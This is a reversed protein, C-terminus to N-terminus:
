RILMIYGKKSQIIGNLMEAEVIYSYNDMNQLKGNFYGNWGKNLDDSFFMEEGWRNFIRFQILDKIGYGRVFVINNEDDSQPTFAMPVDITYIEEVNINIIYENHSCKLSDEVVLLYTTTELPSLVPDPCDNCSINYNPTWSYILNNQDSIVNLQLYEGVIINFDESEFIVEPIQQVKINVSDISSCNRSNKVTAKYTINREPKISPNYSNIDSIYEDPSWECIIGGHAFLNIEDGFCIVTDNSVFLSPIAYIEVTKDITDRCGESSEVILSITVNKDFSSNNQIDINEQIEGNGYEINDTFWWRNEDNVSHSTLHGMLPSCVAETIIDGNNNYISFDAKADHVFINKVPLSIKCTDQFVLLSVQYYGTYPVSDYTHTFYGDFYENGDGMVWEMYDVNRVNIAEVLIADGVCISTDSVSIQAHPADIDINRSVSVECENSTTIILIIEHSGSGSLSLRPEHEVSAGGEYEWRYSFDANEPEVIVDSSLKVEIPYCTFYYGLDSIININEIAHVSITDKKEIICGNNNVTLSIGYIHGEDYIHTIENGGTIINGDGFDWTYTYDPDTEEATFVIISDVCSKYTSVTFEPNATSLNIIDRFVVPRSQCGRETTLTLTVSYSGAELNRTVENVVTSNSGFTANNFQWRVGVVEDYLVESVNTLVVEMPACGSINEPSIAVDFKVIKIAKSYTYICGDAGLGKLIVDYIGGESFSHSVTLENSTWNIIGGDGFDWFYSVIDNSAHARFIIIDGICFVTDNVEFLVQPDYINVEITDHILCQSNYNIGTVTVIYKGYDSFVYPFTTVNDLITDFIEITNNIIDVEGIEWFWSDAAIPQADFIFDFPNNCDNEYSIGDPIIPPHVYVSDDWEMSTNCGNHEILLRAYIYGTDRRFSYYSEGLSGDITDGRESGYFIWNYNTTCVTGCTDNDNNITLVLIDEPCISDNGNLTEIEFEPYFPIGIRVSAYGIIDCHRIQGDVNIEIIVNLSARYVGAEDYSHTVSRLPQTYSYVSDQDGFKWCWYIVNELPFNPESFDFNLEEGPCGTFTGQPEVKYDFVYIVPNNTSVGSCGRESTVTLRPRYVGEGPFSHTPNPSSSTNYPPPTTFDYHFNVANPSSQNIFDVLFPSQCSILDTPDTSFNAIVEEINVTFTEEATCNGGPDVVFRVQHDGTTNYTHHATNFHSIVDSEFYWVCDYDTLNVFTVPLGICREHGGIIEYEAERENIKVFNEKTISDACGYADTVKLKVSYEGFQTYTASPSAITSSTGNGFDWQFNYDINLYPNVISTFDVAHPINCWQRNESFFDIRPARSVSIFNRISTTDSCGNEDVVTLAINFHGYTSFTHSVPAPSSFEQLLGDGFNWRWRTIEGSPSNGARSNQTLETTYSVCGTRPNGTISAVPSNYVVITMSTDKIFSNCRIELTVTYSGGNPFHFTPNEVTTSEDGKSTTWRYTYNSGCGTSTNTFNINVPACYNAANYTFDAIIQSFINGSIIFFYLFLLIKVSKRKSILSLIKM